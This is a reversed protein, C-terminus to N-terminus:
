KRLYNTAGLSHSVSYGNIRDRVGPQIAETEMGGTTTDMGNPTEVGPDILSSSGDFESLYTLM